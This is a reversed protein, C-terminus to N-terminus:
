KGEMDLTILVEQMENKFQVLDFSDSVVEEGQILQTIKQVTEDVDNNQIIVQFLGSNVGEAEAIARLLRRRVVTPDPDKRQLLRKKLQAPSATLFISIIVDALNADLIQRLGKESVDLLPVKGADLIKQIRARELSYRYGDYEVVQCFRGEKEMEQFKETSVFIRRDDDGRKPRNTHSLVEVAIGSRDLAQQVTSKGAGSCGTLTILLNTM